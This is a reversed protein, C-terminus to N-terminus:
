LADNKDNNSVIKVIQIATTYSYTSFTHKNQLCSGGRHCSAAPTDGDHGHVRELGSQLYWDMWKLAKKKVIYLHRYVTCLPVQM